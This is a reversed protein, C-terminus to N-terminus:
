KDSKGCRRCMIKLRCKLLTVKAGKVKLNRVIPISVTEKGLMVADGFKRVSSQCQKAVSPACSSPMRWKAASVSPAAPSSAIPDFLSFYCSM